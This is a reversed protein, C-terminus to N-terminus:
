QIQSRRSKLELKAQAVLELVRTVESVCTIMPIMM